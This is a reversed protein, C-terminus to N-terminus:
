RTAGIPMSRRRCPSATRWAAPSFCGNPVRTSASPMPQWAAPTDQEPDISISVMLVEGKDAALGQQVQAFTASMAPCIATCTTFIFNALVPKDTSLLDRVGVRQGDQDILTVDPIAYSVESRRVGGPPIEHGQHAHHDHETTAAKEAFAPALGLLGALVLAGLGFDVVNGLAINNRYPV